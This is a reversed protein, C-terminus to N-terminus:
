GLKSGVFRSNGRLFEQINMAKKGEPQVERLIVSGSKAQVALKGDRRVVTGSEPAVNEKEPSIELLKLRTKKGDKRFYTYIGPWPHFARYQRTIEEASQNWGIEGDARRIAPSYNAKKGEQRRQKIQGATWKPIFEVIMRSGFRALKKTLSETTDHEGIPIEEQALIDGEDMKENMLMLTIGTKREGKRIASQVPSAGRHKPLLSAHVNLSGFKPIGLITKPLIKGYAAVVILDPRIKKLDDIFKQDGLEVPQFFTIKRQLATEKVPSSVFDQKRGVKKDPRTVVAAVEFEKELLARFVEAAFRPTGFFIIKLNRNDM